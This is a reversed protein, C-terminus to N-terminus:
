RFVVLKRTSAGYKEGSIGVMYIGPRLTSIDLKASSVNKVWNIEKLIRGEIDSIRIKEPQLKQGALDIWLEEKAPNPRLNFSMKEGSINEIGNVGPSTYVACGGGYNGIVFDIKGDGNIDGGSITTRTGELWNGYMSDVETFNGTLNGDINDYFHIYGKESGVMLKYQGNEEFMFPSSHGTIYGTERVNVGGFNTVPTSFVPANVTGTNEFYTITGSSNGVLLDLKGDRNVDIIQPMAFNGIDINQFTAPVLVFNAPNGAGATNNYYIMTGTTEGVLLDMDGDGDLDGFTPYIANLGLAEIGAYDRTILTYEPNTNTGTNRYYSLGSPYSGQDSFYGYNGVILDLLGDADADFFVPNCGEGTEIMQDQLFSHSAFTFVPSAATGTNKYYLIGTFNESINPANPAALLDRKGDNNVDVYFSAPFNFLNVPVSNSPFSDDQAIGLASISDGGNTVLLLNGSIVDSIVLDKDHDGDIDLALLTSGSHNAPYYITDTPHTYRCFTNLTVTNSTANGQFKGWCADAETYKLRSCNGYQEMTLNKHFEVFGGLANFTLIDLDGDGDIDEIAPISVPTVYINLNLSDYQSTLNPSRLSFSLYGNTLFDNHYVAIANTGYTFIDEYGDCDFDKLLVWDHLPPFATEFQPAYKYCVSDPIGQNLFTMVKSGTRDFAFLDKIGDNNLDISSFQPFNMGGAWANPLAQANIFVPISDNRHVNPQALLNGTLLIVMILAPLVTKKLM